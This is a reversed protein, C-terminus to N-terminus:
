RKTNGGSLLDFYEKIAGLNISNCVKFIAWSENLPVSFFKKLSFRYRRFIFNLVYFEQKKELVFNILQLYKFNIEKDTFNELMYYQNDDNM